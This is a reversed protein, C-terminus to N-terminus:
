VGTDKEEVFSSRGEVGLGFTDDLVSEVFGGGTTCGDGDSMTERGDLIGVL